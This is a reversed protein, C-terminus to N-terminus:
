SANLLIRKVFVLILKLPEASDTKDILLHLEKKLSGMDNKM